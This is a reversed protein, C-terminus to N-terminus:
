WLKLGKSLNGTDVIAQKGGGTMTKNGPYLNGHKKYAVNESASGIKSTTLTQKEVLETKYLTNARNKCPLALYNKIGASNWQGNKHFKSQVDKFGAEDLRYVSSNSFERGATGLSYFNDGPNYDKSKFNSGSSLIEKHKGKKIIGQKMLNKRALRDEKSLNKMDIKRSTQFAGAEGASPTIIDDWKQNHLGSPSKTKNSKAFKHKRHKVVLKLLWVV